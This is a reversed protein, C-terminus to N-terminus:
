SSSVQLLGYSNLPKKSVRSGFITVATIAKRL